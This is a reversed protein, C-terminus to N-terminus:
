FLIKKNKEFEIHITKPIIIYQSIKELCELAYKVYQPSFRYLDLYVNTDLVIRYDGTELLDIINNEM